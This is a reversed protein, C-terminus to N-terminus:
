SEPQLDRRKYTRKKRPPDEEVPPTAFVALHRYVFSASEVPAATFYSGPSVVRGEHTLRVVARLSIRESM